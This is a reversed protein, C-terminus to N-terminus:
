EIGIELIQKYIIELRKDSSMKKAMEGYIAPDQSPIPIAKSYEFLLKIFDVTAKGLGYKVKEFHKQLYPSQGWELFVALWTPDSINFVNQIRLYEDFNQLVTMSFYREEAESAFTKKDHVNKSLNYLEPNSYQFSAIFEPRANKLNQLNTIIGLYLRDNLARYNLSLNDRRTMHVDLGQLFLGMGSMLFGVPVLITIFISLHSNRFAKPKMVIAVICSVIFLGITFILLVIIFNSSDVINKLM